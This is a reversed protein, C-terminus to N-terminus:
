VQWANNIEMSLLGSSSGTAFLTSSTSTTAITANSMVVDGATWTWQGKMQVMVAQLFKRTATAFVAM